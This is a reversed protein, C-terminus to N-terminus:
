SDMDRKYSRQDLQDSVRILKGRVRIWSAPDLGFM